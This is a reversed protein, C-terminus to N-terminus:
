SLIKGAPLHGRHGPGFGLGIRQRDLGTSAGCPSLTGRADPVLPAHRVPYGYLSLNRASMADFLFIIINPKSAAQSAGMALTKPALSSLAMAGPVLAALKLFDRRNLKAM